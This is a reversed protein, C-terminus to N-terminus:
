NKRATLNSCCPETSLKLYKPLRVGRNQKLKKKKDHDKRIKSLGYDMVYNLTAENV